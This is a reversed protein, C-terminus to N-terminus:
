WSCLGILCSSVFLYCIGAGFAKSLSKLGVRVCCRCQWQCSGVGDGVRVPATPLFCLVTVSVFRCLWLSVARDLRLHRSNSQHNFFFQRMKERKVRAIAHSEDMPHWKQPQTNEVPVRRALNRKIDADLLYWPAHGKQLLINIWRTKELFNLQRWLHLKVWGYGGIYFWYWSDQLFNNSDWWKQNCM